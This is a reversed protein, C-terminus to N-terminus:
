KHAKEETESDAFTPPWKTITRLNLYIIKNEVFKLTMRTTRLYEAFIYGTTILQYM